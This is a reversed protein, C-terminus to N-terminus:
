LAAIAKQLDDVKNITADEVKMKFTYSDGNAERIDDIYDDFDQQSFTAIKNNPLIAVIRNDVDPNIGFRNRQAFPFAVVSRSDNTILYVNVKSNAKSADAGFDFNAAFLLNEDNKLLIDYNYIGMSNIKMSRIFDAQRKMFNTKESKTMASAKYEKMQQEYSELSKDFEKGTQSACVTTSFNRNDSKLVLVYDNGNKSKKVDATSWKEQFIWKANQPNEGKGAYQWFINKMEKLEPFSEVNIDFNLVPKAKDFKVPKIPAQIKSMNALVKKAEQKKLNPQPATVGKNDWDGKAKDFLWFDYNEGDVYSAMNVTIDKGEAVFVEQSNATAQIEFMGATQMDGDVGNHSAKMPIGSALISAADHFERYQVNVAETITNGNADVFANEPIEISTGNDLKLTQSKSNEIEFSNFGVDVGEMPPAISQHVFDVNETSTETTSTTAETTSTESTCNQFLFSFSLLLISILLFRTKM